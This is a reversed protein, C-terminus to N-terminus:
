TVVMGSRPSSEDNKNARKLAPAVVWIGAAMHQCCPPRYRGSPGRDRQKLRVVCSYQGSINGAPAPLSRAPQLITKLLLSSRVRAVLALTASGANTEQTLTAASLRKAVRKGESQRRQPAGSTLIERRGTQSFQRAATLGTSPLRQPIQPSRRGAGAAM